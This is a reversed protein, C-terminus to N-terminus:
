KILLEKIIAEIVEVVISNGSLKYMQSDSRDKGKYFKDEFGMRVKWYDEDTFGTLRWCELPTLRRVRCTLIKPISDSGTVLTPSLGEDSFVRRNMELMNPNEIDGVRLLGSKNPIRFEVTKRKVAKIFKKLYENNKCYYKIDPNDQLIELLKRNNIEEEPFKFKKNDIDKRISVIFVRERSQISRHDKSNVIKWYSNYGLNDLTSLLEEFDKIFMKSVLNRVNEAIAYKPRKDEIIRLAEFLLGSRTEGKIIGRRKGALSIDQCPFGYTLLDFEGLEATKVKSIDGLNKEEGINHLLSYAYSAYKDIECYNIVEHEVNLNELAKEFAGIGSFLSLVKLM